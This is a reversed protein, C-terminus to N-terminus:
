IAGIVRYAEDITTVVAVPANVSQLREITKRELETLDDRKKPQKIELLYLRGRFGVLLDLAGPLGAVDVVVAGVDVLAHAITSHNIDKKAARRAM